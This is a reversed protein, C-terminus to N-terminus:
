QTPVKSPFWITRVSHVYEYLYMRVKNRTYKIQKKREKKIQEKIQQNIQKNIKGDRVDLDRWRKREM